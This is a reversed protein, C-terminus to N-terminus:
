AIDFIIARERLPRILLPCELLNERRTWWSPQRRMANTPRCCLPYGDYNERWLGLIASTGRVHHSRALTEMCITPTALSRAFEAALLWYAALWGALLRLGRHHPGQAAPRPAPLSQRVLGWVTPVRGLGCTRAAQRTSHPVAM